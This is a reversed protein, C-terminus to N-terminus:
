FAHKLIYTLENFWEKDNTDLAMDIWNLIKAKTWNKRLLYEEPVPTEEKIPTVDSLKIYKKPAKPNPAKRMIYKENENNM